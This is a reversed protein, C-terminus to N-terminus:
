GDSWTKAYHVLFSRSFTRINRILTPSPFSAMSSFLCKLVRPPILFHLRCQKKKRRMYNRFDCRIRCAGATVRGLGVTGIVEFFTLMGHSKSLHVSSARNVVPKKLNHVPDSLLQYQFCRSVCQLLSSIGM